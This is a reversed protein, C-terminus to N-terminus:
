ERPTIVVTPRTDNSCRGPGNKFYHRSTFTVTGGYSYRCVSNEEPCCTGGEALANKLNLVSNGELNIFLSMVFISLATFFLKKM